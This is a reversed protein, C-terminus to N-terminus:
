DGILGFLNSFQIRRGTVPNLAEGTLIERPSAVSHGMTM